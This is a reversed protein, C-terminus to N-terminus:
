GKETGQFFVVLTVLHARVRYQVIVLQVTDHSTQVRESETCYSFLQIIFCYAMNLIKVPTKAM